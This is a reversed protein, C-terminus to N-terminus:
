LSFSADFHSLLRWVIPTPLLVQSHRQARALCRAATRLREAHAPPLHQVLRGAQTSSQALAAPLARGLGRCPSPVLAWEAESLPLRALIFDAFLPQMKEGGQSLEQLATL